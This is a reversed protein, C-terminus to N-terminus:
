SSRALRVECGAGDAEKLAEPKEVRVMVELVPGHGLCARALRLAFTEVLAVHGEAAIQRAAEAVREYNLTDSLGEVSAGELVAEIDITLPQTRDYEDANVGICAGVRLGRVFVTFRAM